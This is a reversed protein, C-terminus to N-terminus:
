HASNSLNISFLCPILIDFRIEILIKKYFNFSFPSLFREYNKKDLFEEFNKSQIFNKTDIIKLFNESHDRIIKNLKKLIKDLYVNKEENLYIFEMIIVKKKLFKSLFSKFKELIFNEISNYEEFNKIKNLKNILNNELTSIDLFILYVDKNENEILNSNFYDIGNNSFVESSINNKRLFYDILNKLQFSTFSSILRINLRKDENREELNNIQDFLNEYEINNIQKKLIM